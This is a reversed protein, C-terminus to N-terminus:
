RSAGPHSAPLAVSFPMVTGTFHRAGDVVHVTRAGPPSKALADLVKAKFSAAGLDAVFNLKPRPDVGGFLRVRQMGGPLSRQFNVEIAKMRTVHQHTAANMAAMVSPMDVRAGSKLLWQAIGLAKSLEAIRGWSPAAGNPASLADFRDSALGAWRSEVSAPDTAIDRLGTRSSADRRQHRSEVGMQIASVRVLGDVGKALELRRCVIWTRTWQEPRQGAPAAHDRLDLLSAIPKEGSAYAVYRDGDQKLGFQFLKLLVDGDLLAAQAPLGLSATEPPLQIAQLWASDPDGDLPDLTFAIEKGTAVSWLAWAMTSADTPETRATGDRTLLVLQGNPALVAAEVAPVHQLAVREPGPKVGGPMALADGGPPPGGGGNVPPDASAPKKKPPEREKRHALPATEPRPQHETLQTPKAGDRDPVSGPSVPGTVNRTLWPGVRTALRTAMVETADDVTTIRVNMERSWQTVASHTDLPWLWTTVHLNVHNSYRLNAFARGDLDEIPLDFLGTITLFSTEPHAVVRERWEPPKQRPSELIVGDVKVGVKNLADFIYGVAYTGDSHGRLLIKGEPHLRKWEIAALTAVEAPHKIKNPLIRLVAKFPQQPLKLVELPILPIPSQTRGLREKGQMPLISENFDFTWIVHRREAKRMVEGASVVRDPYTDSNLIGSYGKRKDDPVLWGHFGWTFIHTDNCLHGALTDAHGRPSEDNLGIFDITLTPQQNDCSGAAAALPLWAAMALLGSRLASLARNTLVNPMLM